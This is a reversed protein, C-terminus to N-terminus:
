NLQINGGQIKNGRRARSVVQDALTTAKGRADLQIKTRGSVLLLETKAEIIIHRGKLVVDYNENGECEAMVHSYVQGIIVPDGNPLLLVVVEDVLNRIPVTTKAPKPETVYGEIDVYVTGDRIFAVKSLMAEARAIEPSAKEETFRRGNPKTSTHVTQLRKRNDTGLYEPEASITDMVIPYRPDNNQFALLVGQGKETSHRVADMDLSGAIRALQPGFPNGPFDVKVYRDEIGVVTGIRVGNIRPNANLLQLKDARIVNM